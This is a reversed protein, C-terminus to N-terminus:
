RDRGGKTHFELLFSVRCMLPARKPFDRLNECKAVGEQSSVTCYKSFRLQSQAFGPTARINEQGTTCELQKQLWVAVFQSLPIFIM